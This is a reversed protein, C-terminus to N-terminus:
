LFKDLIKFRKVGLVNKKQYPKAGIALQKGCYNYPKRFM